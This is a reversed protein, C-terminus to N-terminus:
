TAEVDLNQDFSVPVDMCQTSVDRFEGTHHDPLVWLHGYRLFQIVQSPQAFLNFGSKLFPKRHPDYLCATKWPVAYKMPFNRWRRICEAKSGRDNKGYRVPECSRELLHRGAQLWRRLACTPHLTVEKGNPPALSISDASRTRPEEHIPQSGIETNGIVTTAQRLRRGAQTNM